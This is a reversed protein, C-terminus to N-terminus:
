APAPDPGLVSDIVTKLEGQDIPKPVFANMGMSLYRERAEDAVHASCAVIPVDHMPNDSGRIQKTAGIGDMGPMMIDMLILDYRNKITAEVAEFGNAVTDVEYGLNTLITFMMDQNLKNDEALLVKLTGLDSKTTADDAAIAETVSPEVVEVDLEFSFTSGKGPTSDVDIKADLRQAINLCISLGLGWGGREKGFDSEIQVFPKFLQAIQSPQMGPGTDEVEFRLRATDSVRDVLEVRLIVQGAETFKVANGLFNNLVQQLRVPDARIVRPLARDLTVVLKLGKQKASSHWWDAIQDLQDLLEFERPEIRMKGEEIHSLDLLDTLLNMLSGGASIIADVHGKRKEDLNSLKLLQAFGLIANMPTRIEHSMAALFRSKARSAEEAETAKEELLRKAEIAPRNDFLIAYSRLFNGDGDIIKTASMLIPIEEGSKTLYTLSLDQVLGTRMFTPLAEEVAYTRSADSLFDISPRGIMEEATYGLLQAWGRSVKVLIGQDDISHMLVPAHDLVADLPDLDPNVRFGVTNETM